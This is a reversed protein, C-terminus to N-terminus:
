PVAPVIWVHLLTRIGRLEGSDGPISRYASHSVVQIYIQLNKEMCDLKKPCFSSPVAHHSTNEFSRPRDKIMVKLSGTQLPRGIDM